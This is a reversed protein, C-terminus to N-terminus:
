DDLRGTARLWATQYIKFQTRAEILNSRAQQWQTQADLMDTLTIMSEAYRESSVDLNAKAQEMAVEASQIMNWGDTLNTAANIAELSMLDRKQELDERLRDVELQAKRVKKVGEGWHFLPISVSILGMGIGDRHEQSYPVYNGAGVDAVGKMRINGYYNYGLSIGVTPLFDGRVLNVQQKGAKVQLELLDLEPRRSIDTDPIDMLSCDVISDAVIIETDFGVGIANCLAQRCLERGNEVKQTQYIIESRKAKVRLLDNEVAMGAEVAVETQAYITDITARFARMLNVKDCVAVYTWYANDADAMVDMRTMRLQQESAEKGIRALKRGATIKGGAYIPQVLQIGAIYAGRFQLKSGMMDIDPLMYVATASGDFKPLLATNSIQRDLEAQRLANESKRIERSNEIAMKRCDSASLKLPTSADAVLAAMSVAMCILIRDIKM